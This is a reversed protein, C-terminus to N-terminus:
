ITETGYLLQANWFNCVPGIVDYTCLIRTQQVLLSSSTNINQCSNAVRWSFVLCLAGSMLGLYLGFYNGLNIYIMKCKKAHILLPIMERYLFFIKTAESVYWNYSSSLCTAQMWQVSSKSNSLCPLQVCFRRWGSREEIKHVLSTIFTRKWRLMLQQELNLVKAAM